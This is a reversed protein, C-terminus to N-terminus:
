ELADELDDITEYRKSSNNASHSNSSDSFVRNEGGTYNNTAGVKNAIGRIMNTLRSAEYFNIDQVSAGIAGSASTAYDTLLDKFAELEVNPLYEKQFKLNVLDKVNFLANNTNFIFKQTMAYSGDANVKGIFLFPNSTNRGIAIFGKVSGSGTDVGYVNDIDSKIVRDVCEALIRAKMPSMYISAIESPRVNIDQSIESIIIKLTGKWYNFSLMTKDEYNKIRFRSYYTPNNNGNNSNQSNNYNGGLAM